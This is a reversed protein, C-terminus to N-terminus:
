KRIGQMSVHARLNIKKKKVCHECVLVPSRDWIFGVRDQFPGNRNVRKDVDPWM